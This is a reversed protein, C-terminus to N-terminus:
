KSRMNGAAYKESTGLPDNPEEERCLAVPIQIVAMGTMAICASGDNGRVRSDM